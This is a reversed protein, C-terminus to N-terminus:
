RFSSAPCPNALQIIHSTSLVMSISGEALERSSLFMGPISCGPCVDRTGGEGGGNLM